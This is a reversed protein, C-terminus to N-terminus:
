TLFLSIAFSYFNSGILVDWKLPITMLLIDHFTRNLFYILSVHCYSESPLHWYNYPLPASHLPSVKFDSPSATGVWPFLLHWTESTSVLTDHSPGSLYSFHGSCRMYPLSMYQSLCSPPLLMGPLFHWSSQKPQTLNSLSRLYRFWRKWYPTAYLLGSSLAPVILIPKPFENICLFDPSKQPSM